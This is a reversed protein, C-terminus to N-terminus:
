RLGRILVADHKWGGRVVAFSEGDPSFALSIIKGDGLDAMKLPTAADLPQLWLDHNDSESDALVCALSKGDPTWALELDEKHRSYKDAYSFTKVTRGDALSVIAIFTEAGKGESFAVRSGDPSFAFRYKEKNLVQQEEEGGKTSVRWLTRTLGHHYYIWRGDRSVFIPMGGEKATIQMQNSGDANMRWVQASGTRNSVFFISNNDPSSVPAADYAADSTLQRQGTGDM